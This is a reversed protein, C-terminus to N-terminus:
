RLRRPLGLARSLRRTQPQSRWHLAPHTYPCVAPPHPDSQLHDGGGTEEANQLTCEHQPHQQKWGGVYNFLDCILQM